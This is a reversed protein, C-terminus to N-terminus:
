DTAHATLTATGPELKPCRREFGLQLSDAHRGDGVAELADGAEAEEVTEIVAVEAVWSLEAKLALPPRRGCSPNKLLLRRAARCSRTTRLQIHRSADAGRTKM